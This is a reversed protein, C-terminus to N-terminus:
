LVLFTLYVLSSLADHLQMQHSAGIYILSLHIKSIVTFLLICFLLTLKSHADSSHLTRYQLADHEHGYTHELFISRRLLHGPTRISSDAQFLLRPRALDLFEM